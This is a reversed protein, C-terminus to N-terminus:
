IGAGEDRYGVCPECSVGLRPTPLTPHTPYGRDWTTNDVASQMETCIPLERSLLRRTRENFLYYLGDSRRVKNSPETFGLDTLARGLARMSHPRQNADRRRQNVFELIRVPKIGVNEVDVGKRREIEELERLYSRQTEKEDDMSEKAMAEIIGSVNWGLIHDITTFINALDTRRAHVNRLRELEKLHEPSTQWKELADGDLSKKVEEAIVNLSAAIRLVDNKRYPWAVALKPVNSSKAMEITYCRSGLAEEPLGISTLVKPGGCKIDQPQYGASTPVMKRYCGDWTHGIRLIAEMDEVRRANGDIEDIGIMKGSLVGALLAGGSIAQLWEGNSIEIVFQGAHSKGTGSPGHFLLYVCIDSPLYGRMRALVSFLLIICYDLPNSLEFYCRMLRIMEVITLRDMSAEDLVDTEQHPGLNPEHPDVNASM